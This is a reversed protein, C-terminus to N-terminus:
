IDKLLVNSPSNKVALQLAKVAEEIRRYEENKEIPIDNIGTDNLRKRVFDFDLKAIDISPQYRSEVRQGDTVESIIKATVLEYLIKRILKAPIQLGESLESATPAVDGNEFRRVLGKVVVLSLLFRFSNSIENAEMEFEYKGQNQFGFSLESGLMVILWNTQTWILFLPLAAFGGYIANYKSVGIQFTLYAWEVLGVAIAAIFAGFFAASFNVKTNPLIMYIGTFLLVTIIFPLLNLFIYIVPGFFGLIEISSAASTLQMSIFVTASGSIITLIPAVLIIALYDTFKRVMTRASKIEWIDNFAQEINGMLKMVSWFLLIVGIGAIVGGKTNQLMSNALDFVYGIIEQNYSIDSKIETEFKKELGFGKAIGFLMAIVPVISLLTYFTLASAKLQCNDRKFDRIAIVLTRVLRIGHKRPGRVRNLDIQWIEKDVFQNFRNIIKM